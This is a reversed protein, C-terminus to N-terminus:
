KLAEEIQDITLPKRCLRADHKKAAADVKLDNKWNTIIVIKTKQSRESESERIKEVFKLGTYRGDDTEESTFYDGRGFMVDSFIVDYKESHYRDFADEITSVVDVAHGNIQLHDVIAEITMTDDDIFLLKM